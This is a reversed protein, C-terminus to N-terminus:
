FSIKNPRSKRDKDVFVDSISSYISFSFVKADFENMKKMEDFINKFDNFKLYEKSSFVSEVIVKL